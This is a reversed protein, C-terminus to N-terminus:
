RKELTKMISKIQHMCEKEKLYYNNYLTFCCIIGFIITTLQFAMNVKTM